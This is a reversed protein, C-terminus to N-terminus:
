VYLETSWCRCPAPRPAGGSGTRHCLNAVSAPPSPDAAARPAGVVAHEVLM